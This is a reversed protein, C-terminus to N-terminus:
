LTLEGEETEGLLGEADGELTDVAVEVLVLAVVLGCIVVPELEELPDCCSIDEELETALEGRLEGVPVPLESWVVRGGGGFRADLVADTGEEPVDPDGGLGGVLSADLLADVMAAATTAGM